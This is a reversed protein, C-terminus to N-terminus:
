AADIKNKRVLYRFCTFPLKEESTKQDGFSLIVLHWTRFCQEKGLIHRDVPPRGHVAGLELPVIETAPSCLTQGVFHLM